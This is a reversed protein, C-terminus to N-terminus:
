ATYVVIKHFYGASPRRLQRSKHPKNDHAGNRRNDNRADHNDHQQQQRPPKKNSM